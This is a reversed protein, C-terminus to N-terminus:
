SISVLLWWGIKPKKIGLEKARVKLMEDWESEVTFKDKKMPNTHEAYAYTTKVSKGVCLFTQMDGCIGDGGYILSFGKGAKPEDDLDDDDDEDDNWVKDDDEDNWADEEESHDSSLLFGYGLSATYDTGM